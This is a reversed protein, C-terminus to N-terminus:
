RGPKKTETWVGVTTVTVLTPFTFIELLQSSSMSVNVQSSLFLWNVQASLTKDNGIWNGYRIKLVPAATYKIFVSVLKVTLFNNYNFSREPITPNYSYTLRESMTTQKPRLKLQSQGECGCSVLNRSCRDLKKPWTQCVLWLKVTSKVLSAAHRRRTTRWYISQHRIINNQVSYM